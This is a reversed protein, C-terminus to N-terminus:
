QLVFKVTFDETSIKDVLETEVSFVEIINQDNSYVKISVKKGYNKGIKINYVSSDNETPDGVNYFDGDIYILNVTGSRYFILELSVIHNSM